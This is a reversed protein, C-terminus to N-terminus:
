SCAYTGLVSNPNSNSAIRAEWFATESGVILLRKFRYGRLGTCNTNLPTKPKIVHLLTRGHSRWQDLVYMTANKLDV